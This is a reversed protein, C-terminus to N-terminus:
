IQREVTGVQDQLMVKMGGLLYFNGLIQLITDRAAMRHMSTVMKIASRDTSSRGFSTLLKNKFTKLVMAEDAKLYLKQNCEMTAAQVNTHGLLVLELVVYVNVFVGFPHSPPLHDEM